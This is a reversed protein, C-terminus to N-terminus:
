INRKLNEIEEELLRNKTREKLIDLRMKSNIDMVMFQFALDMKLSELLTEIRELTNYQKKAESANSRMLKLKLAIIYSNLEEIELRQLTVADQSNARELIREVQKPTLFQAEYPEKKKM